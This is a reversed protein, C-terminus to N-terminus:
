RFDDGRRPARRGSNKGFYVPLRAFESQQEFGAAAPELIDGAANSAGKGQTAHM